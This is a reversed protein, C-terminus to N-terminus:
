LVYSTYYFTRVLTLFLYVKKVISQRQSVYHFWFWTYVRPKSQTTGRYIWPVFFMNADGLWTHTFARRYYELPNDHPIEIDFGNYYANEEDHSELYLKVGRFTPISTLFFCECSALPRLIDRKYLYLIKPPKERKWMFPFIDKPVVCM